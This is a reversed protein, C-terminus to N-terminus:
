LDFVGTKRQIVDLLSEEQKLFEEPYELKKVPTKRGLFFKLFNKITQMKSLKPKELDKKSGGAFNYFFYRWVKTYIPYYDTKWPKDRDTFHVLKPNKVGEYLSNWYEKKIYDQGFMRRPLTEPKLWYSVFWFYKQVNYSWDINKIRDKLVYNIADQDHYICKEPNTLVFDILKNMCKEERFLKLNFLIVGSNYYNYEKEYPLRNFNRVDNYVCDGVMGLINSGLVENFLDKIKGTCIIDVDLYLVKDIDDPLLEPIFFRYYAEITIHDTSRVIFQELHNDSLEYYLIDCGGAVSKLENIDAENFSKGIIHFTFESGNFFIISSILTKCYKVWNRSLCLVIHNM